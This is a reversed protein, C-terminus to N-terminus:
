MGEEYAAVLFKALNSHFRLHHNIKFESASKQYCYAEVFFIFFFPVICTGNM